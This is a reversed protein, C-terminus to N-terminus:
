AHRRARGAGIALVYVLAIYPWAASLLRTLGNFNLFHGQRWTALSAALYPNTPTINVAVTAAMLALGCLVFQARRPLRLAFLVVILGCAVGIAAGPTLWLLLSPSKFLIGYALSRVALAVVIFALFLIRVPQGRESILALMLGVATINAGAVFAEAGIFQRASYHIGSPTQFLDRLDGNGFLLTEPNLQTVLWLAMLVLGLDVAGGARFLRYRLAQVIGERLLRRALRAGLAAGLMGGLANALFDINSPTRAPLFGQLAELALSLAVSSATALLFAYVGRVGPYLAIAALFGFPAYGLVNAVLDFVLLYRPPPASIFAFPEIGLDRWGSFPHLSAYVTLLAYALLLYRALPSAREEAM